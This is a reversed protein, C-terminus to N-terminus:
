LSEDKIQIELDEGEPAQEGAKEKEELEAKKRKALDLIGDDSVEYYDIVSQLTQIAQFNDGKQIYVDALVIFSKAMWYQHPTNLDIFNFIEDEAQQYEKRVYYLEAVRYKSEAGEPSKVETAVIKFEDLALAFRDLGYFSKAIKFHAERALEEPIKEDTLVERAADIANQYEELNYYCRMKGVLAEFINSKTEAVEELVLYNELANPWKGLSYNIRSASVLAPETYQNRPHSIVYGYAELARDLEGAKVHCEAKYFNAQLLFKGNPFRNIYNGFNEISRGCDGSMYVNEAAIYNLSDQALATMDESIGLSNTYAFYDDVRGMDVYVNKIGVLASNAEPTGPYDTIVKKYNKLSEDYQNQNYYILGIQLLAKSAYSSNTHETLIKQYIPISREPQQMIFYSRGTEYLADATYSSNKYSDLIRTLVMIKDMHRNMLGLSFGKQFLAYDVDVLGLEIAKDYYEVAEPYRMNLFLLDGIRNYTDGLLRNASGRGLNEYQKFKTMAQVYDDMEFYCYAINYLCNDYVDLSAAGSSSMFMNYYELARKYDKLRYYSEGKWYCCLTKIENDYQKYKLSEDFKNIADNFLLNNFLELGRFYSVRQYAKEIEPTKNRIKELLAYATKYNKTSMFALVLYKYAEDTRKSAPYLYIYQNFAIVAENFPNYALEYTVVAYNFLADEKIEANYDLKSAVSFSLRAQNKQDLHMYCDGMHYLASQSLEDRGTAAAKFYEVAKAYNAAMYYAYAIQYKDTRSPSGTLEQYKELFPIAKEYQETQFYAEGIMKSVEGYRKETVSELLPPAYDLLENWKKQMYYIQTVYYPVIPSFTEDDSLKLFGNLATEYNQQIYAIHAYYYTAPMAYKNDTDKIEYLALRADEYENRMFHSYGKKFLYEGQQESTLDYRDAGQFWKLATGWNKKDYAFKGLEFYAMSINQSEPYRNIYRYMLYEADDNFLKVACLANYYEADQAIESHSGAYSEMVKQFELQAAGYKEKGFLALGKYYSVDVYTDSITHQAKLGNFYCFILIIVLFLPTRLIRM